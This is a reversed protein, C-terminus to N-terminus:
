DSALTGFQMEGAETELCLGLGASSEGAWCMKLLEVVFVVSRPLLSPHEARAPLVWPVGARSELVTLCLCSLRCLSM